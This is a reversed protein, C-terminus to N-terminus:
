EARRERAVGSTTIRVVLPLRSGIARDVDDVAERVRTVLAPLDAGRRARVRISIATRGRLRHAGADVGVVAPQRELGQALLDRVVRVDLATRDERYATPTGGRGRSLIWLLALVILVACGGAIWWLTPPTPDDFRPVAPLAAWTPALAPWAILAAGALIGLACVLLVIRNLTRNSRRM